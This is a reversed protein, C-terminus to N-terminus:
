RCCARKKSFFIGGPNITKRDLKYSRLNYVEKANPNGLEANIIFYAKEAEKDYDYGLNMILYSYKPKVQSYSNGYFNLLGVLLIIPKM